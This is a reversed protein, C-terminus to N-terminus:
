IPSALNYHLLCLVILYATDGHTGDDEKKVSSLWKTLSSLAVNESSIRGTSVAKLKLLLKLTKVRHIDKHNQFTKRHPYFCSISSLHLSNHHIQLQFVLLPQVLM